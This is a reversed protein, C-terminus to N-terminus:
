ANARKESKKPTAEVAPGKNMMARFEDLSMGYKAAVAAEPDIVVGSRPVAGTRIQTERKAVAETVDAAFQAESTPTLWEGDENQYDAPKVGSHADNLSQKLGYEILYTISQAPLKDRDFALVAGTKKILISFMNCEM